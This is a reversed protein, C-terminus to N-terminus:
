PQRWQTLRAGGGAKSSFLLSGRPIVWIRADQADQHLPEGDQYYWCTLSGQNEVRLPEGLVARVKEQSMGKSLKRWIGRDPGTKAVEATPNSGWGSAFAILLPVLLLPRM